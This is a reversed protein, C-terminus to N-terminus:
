FSVLVRTKIIDTFPIQKVTAAGKGSSQKITIYSETVEELEGEIQEGELTVRVNKGRNRHYQRALKLPQDLGPSSVELTYPGEVIGLQELERGM